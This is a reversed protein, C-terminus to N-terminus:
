ETDKILNWTKWDGVVTNSINTQPNQEKGNVMVSRISVSTSLYDSLDKYNVDGKTEQMKKLLHYTFIGHGKEAYPLSSQEGSSASFVILNGNIINEKPNIKVGRAAMLGMARGGGSFCADIFVTVRKAPHESLKKYFENLSIAFDLDSGSVDVPILFPEKTVEHPFGHGAYYVFFEGQGQTAKMISNVKSIARNMELVKANKLFIINAEPVGLTKNAYEKFIEADHIAFDVDMESRLGSQFSSYDENGFILAFRMSNEVGLDPIATDVDSLFMKEEVVEREVPAVVAAAAAAALIASPNRSEERCEIKFSRETVFGSNDTVVALVNNEYGPSLPVDLEYISDATLEAEIKNVLVSKIGYFDSSQIKVHVYPEYIIPKLGENVKEPLLFSLTPASKDVIEGPMVNVVAKYERPRKFVFEEQDTKNLARQETTAYKFPFDVEIKNGLFEESVDFTLKLDKRFLLIDKDSKLSILDPDNIKINKTEFCVVSSPDNFPKMEDNVWSVSLDVDFKNDYIKGPTIRIICNKGSETSYVLSVKQGYVFVGLMVILLILVGKKM